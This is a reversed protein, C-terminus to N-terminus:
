MKEVGGWGQRRGELKQEGKFCFKKSPDMENLTKVEEQGM